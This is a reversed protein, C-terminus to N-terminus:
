AAAIERRLDAGELLTERGMTIREARWAGSREAAAAEALAAALDPEMRLGATGDPYAIEMLCYIPISCAMAFAKERKGM